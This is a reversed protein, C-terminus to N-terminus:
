WPQPRRPRFLLYAGYLVSGCILGNFGAMAWEPWSYPWVFILPLWPLVSVACVVYRNVDVPDPTGPGLPRCYSNIAAWALLQIAVNAGIFVVARSLTVHRGAGTPSAVARSLQGIRASTCTSRPAAAHSRAPHGPLDATASAPLPRGVSTRIASSSSRTPVALFLQRVQGFRQDLIAVYRPRRQAARRGDPESWEERRHRRGWLLWDIGYVIVSWFLGAVLTFIRFDLTDGTLARYPLAVAAAPSVLVSAASEGARHRIERWDPGPVVYATPEYRVLHGILTSVSVWHAVVVVVVVAVIGLAHKM